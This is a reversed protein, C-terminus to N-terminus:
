GRWSPPTKKTKSTKVAVNIAFEIFIVQFRLFNRALEAVRAAPAPRPIFAFPAPL